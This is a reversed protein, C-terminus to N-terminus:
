EARWRTKEPPFDLRFCSGRDLGDSTVSIAIDSRKCIEAVNHLGLGTGDSKTTFGIDFVQQLTDPEMGCGTDTIELIAGSEKSRDITIRVKRIDTKRTSQIANQILNIVVQMLANKNIQVMPTVQDFTELQAQIESALPQSTEISQSILEQLSVWEGSMQKNKRIESLHGSAIGHMHQVQDKVRKIEDAVSAQESALHQQLKRLYEITKKGREGALFEILNNQNEDLLDLARQFNQLKSDKASAEITGTSINLSSLVNRLDHIIGSATNALETKRTAERLALKKAKTLEREQNDVEEMLQNFHIAIQGIESYSNEPAQTKRDGTELQTGLTTIFESLESRAGHEAFNLGMQESSEDVRLPYLRNILQFGLWCTAFSFLGCAIAGFAEIGILQLRTMGNGIADLDGFLGLSLTGWVGGVGHIPFAALADDIQLRNLIEVSTIALVGAISSVLLASSISLAHCGATISVLGALMGVIAEFPRVIGDRIYSYTIGALGGGCSGLLTITIIAPVRESFSQDSGGNFGIWGFALIFAGLISLPFNSSVFEKRGMGPAFRGLRPGVVLAGALAAIGGTGHVIMGGAQDVFGMSRLWGTADPFNAWGWHGVVCYVLSVVISMKVYSGFGVREAVAGSVITVATACFVAQYLFFIIQQSSKELASTAFDSTGILGHFSSGFMIGFGILWFLILSISSDVFNKLAVHISNKSRTLGAELCMFGPQM